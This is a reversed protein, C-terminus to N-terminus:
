DRPAHSPLDESSVPDSAVPRKGKRAEKLWPFVATVPRQWDISGPTPLDPMDSPLSRGTRRKFDAAAQALTRADGNRAFRAAYLCRKWLRKDEDGKDKRKHVTGVQKVLNGDVQRILRVSTFFKHGCHPCPASYAVFSRIGGCEPCRMPEKVEGAELNIQRQEAISKETDGLTWEYDINPSGHRWWAGAHDQMTCYEKGSLKHARLLRGVLQIYMTLTGCPQVLIGHRVWPMNAGERLVGYSSILAIDGCEHDQLIQKRVSDETMGDIHEAKVGCSRFKDVFWKSEEVGPAWLLTPYAAINLRRWHKYVDGFVITEMVRKAAQGPLYDGVENRQVGQLDPEDPAFVHCPVLMGAARLEAKTGAIILKKYIHGIGIPSATWGCAVGGSRLVHGIVQEAMGRALAHAEDVEIYDFHGLEWKKQKFAQSYITQVSGVQIRKYLERNYKAALVGYDVDEGRLEGGTQGILLRRNALILTRAGEEAHTLARVAMMRTKGGGTPSTVCFAKCGDAEAKDADGLGSAQHAMLGQV